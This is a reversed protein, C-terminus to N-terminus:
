TSVDPRLTPLEGVKGQIIKVLPSYDTLAQQGVPTLDYVGRSVRVFWGYHNDRLIAATKAGGGAARLKCPSTAGQNALLVALLLAQERYATVLPIRNVGGQNLNLSREAMESLIAQTKGKDRRRPSPLPHFRIEVRPAPSDTVVLILGLTLRKLLRCLQRFRKDELEPRPVAVYVSAEVSQREVAQLLLDLNISRKMEILVLEEGRRAAIDAHKVEAHVQYGNAELWDRLPPFLDSERWETM